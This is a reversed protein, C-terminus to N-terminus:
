ALATQTTNVHCVPTPKFTTLVWPPTSRITRTQATIDPYMKAEDEASYPLPANVQTKLLAEKALARLATVEERTIFLFSFHFDPDIDDM